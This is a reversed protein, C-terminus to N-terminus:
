IEVECCSKIINGECTSKVLLIVRVLMEKVLVELYCQGYRSVGTCSQLNFCVLVEM